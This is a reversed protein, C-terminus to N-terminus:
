TYIQLQRTNSAMDAPFHDVDDSVVVRVGNRIFTLTVKCVTLTKNLVM